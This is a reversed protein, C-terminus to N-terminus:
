KCIWGYGRDLEDVRRGGALSLFDSVSLKVLNGLSADYVFIFDNAQVIDGSAITALTDANKTVYDFLFQVTVKKTVAAATDYVPIEHGSTLDAYSIAPLANIDFGGGALTLFDEVSIMKLLNAGLDFVAVLDDAQVIDGAAIANLESVKKGM